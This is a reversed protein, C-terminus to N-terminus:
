SYKSESNSQEEYIRLCNKGNRKASFMAENAADLLAQPENGDRPYFALGISVNVKVRQKQHPHPVSLNDIIRNMQIVADSPDRIGTLVISFEDGEMRAVIDTSRTFIQIREAVKKLFTDGKLRGYLENVEKFNDIDMVAVALLTEQNKAILIDNTLHEFFTSRNPVGTLSDNVSMPTLRESNRLSEILFFRLWRTVQFLLWLVANILIFIFVTSQTSDEPAFLTTPSFLFLILLTLNLFVGYSLLLDTRFYVSALILLTFFFYHPVLSYHYTVATVSILVTLISFLLM